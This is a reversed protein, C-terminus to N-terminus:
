ARHVFDAVTLPEDWALNWARRAPGRTLAALLQDVVAGSFVHRVPQAPARLLIAERRMLRAFLGPLRGHYDRSGHVMPLRFTTYPLAGRALVDEMARKDVGYKWNDFDDATPAESLVPGDYDQERALGEPRPTRVLYVQGTSVAILHGVKGALVRELREAQAGDFLAFDVVADFRANGLAADFAEAGRDVVIRQVQAGFPDVLSGRNLLTVEHGQALLRVVLEVGLFRNGGIVLVNM